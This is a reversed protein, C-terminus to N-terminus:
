GPNWNTKNDNYTTCSLVPLEALFTFLYKCSLVYNGFQVKSLKFLNFDQKGFMPGRSWRPPAYQTHDSRILVMQKFGCWDTGENVQEHHHQHKFVYKAEGMFRDMFSIVPDFWCVYQSSIQWLTYDNDNLIHHHRFTFWRDFCLRERM